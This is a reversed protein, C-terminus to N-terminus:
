QNQKDKTKKDKFTVILGGTVIAIIVWQLCLRPIDLIIGYPAIDEKPQPPTLICNYGANERSNVGQATFTYLWPPYIGMAVIVAIGIWLCIKPKRNM